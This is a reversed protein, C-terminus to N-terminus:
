KKKNRMQKERHLFVSEEAIEKEHILVAVVSVVASVLAIGTAIISM